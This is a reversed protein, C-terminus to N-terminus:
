QYGRSIFADLSLSQKNHVHMEYIVLQEKLHRHPGIFQRRVKVYDYAEQLTWQNRSMLYAIVIAASRSRGRMCHVLCVANQAKATDIIHFAKEFLDHQHEGDPMMDEVIIKTIQVDEHEYHCEGAVNLVTTIDHQRLVEINDANSLSGLYLFPLIETPPGYQELDNSDRNITFKINNKKKKPEEEAEIQENSKKFFNLVGKMKYLLLVFTHLFIFLIFLWTLLLSTLLLEVNLLLGEESFKLQERRLL